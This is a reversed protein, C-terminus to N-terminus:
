FFSYLFTVNKIFNSIVDSQVIDDDVLAFLFEEYPARVGSM